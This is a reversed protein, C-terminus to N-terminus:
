NIMIKQMKGASYYEVKASPLELKVRRALAIGELDLIVIEQEDEFQLYHANEYRNLWIRIDSILEKSIKLESLEIYGGEVSDRIGTGSLMGDIKLYHM